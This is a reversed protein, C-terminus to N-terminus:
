RTRGSRVQWCNSCASQDIDSMGSWVDAIDSMIDYTSRFTKEDALIDVGGSGNVNTLAKVQARLKSTSEAM